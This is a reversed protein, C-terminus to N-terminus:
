EDDEGGDDNDEEPMKSYDVNIILADNMVVKTFPHKEDAPVIIVPDKVNVSTVINIDVNVKVM